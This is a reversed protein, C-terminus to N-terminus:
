EMLAVRHTSALTGGTRALHFPASRVFEYYPEVIRSENRRLDDTLAGDKRICAKSWIIGLKM